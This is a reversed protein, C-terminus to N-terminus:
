MISTCKRMTCEDQVVALVIDSMGYLAIFADYLFYPYQAHKVNILNIDNNQSCLQHASVKM